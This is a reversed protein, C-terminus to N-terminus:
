KHLKQIAHRAKVSGGLKQPEQCLCGYVEVNKSFSKIGEHRAYSSKHSVQVSAQRREREVASIPERIEEVMSSTYSVSLSPICQTRQGESDM